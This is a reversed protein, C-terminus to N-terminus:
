EHFAGAPANLNQHAFKSENPQTNKDLRNVKLLRVLHRCSDFAIISYKLQSNAACITGCDVHNFMPIVIKQGFRHKFDTDARAACLLHATWATNPERSNQPVLKDLVRQLVNPNHSVLPQLKKMKSRNLKKKVLRAVKFSSSNILM